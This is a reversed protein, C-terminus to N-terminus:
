FATGLEHHIVIALTLYKNCMTHYNSYCHAKLIDESSPIMGPMDIVPEKQPQGAKIAAFDYALQSSLM